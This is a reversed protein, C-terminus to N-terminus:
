DAARRVGGDDPNPPDCQPVPDSEFSDIHISCPVVSFEVWSDQMFWGDGGLELGFRGSRIKGNFADTDFAYDYLGMGSWGIEGGELVLAESEGGVIPVAFVLHFARADQLIPTLYRNLRVRTTVVHGMLPESGGGFWRWEFAGTAQPPLLYRVTQIRSSHFRADQAAACLPLLLVVLALVPRMTETYRLTSRVRKRFKHMSAAAVACAADICATRANAALRSAHPAGVRTSM